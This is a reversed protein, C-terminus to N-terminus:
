NGPLYIFKAQKVLDLRSTACRSLLQAVRLKLQSNRSERSSISDLLNKVCADVQQSEFM